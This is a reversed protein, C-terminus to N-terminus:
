PNKIIRMISWIGRQFYKACQKLRSKKTGTLSHYYNKIIAIKTTSLLKSQNKLHEPKEYSELDVKTQYVQNFNTLLPFNHKLFM